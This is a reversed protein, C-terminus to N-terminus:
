PDLDESKDWNPNRKELFASIGEKADSRLLNDKMVGSTYLYADSLNMESQLM